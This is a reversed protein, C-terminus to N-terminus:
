AARVTGPLQIVDYDADVLAPAGRKVVELIPGGVRPPDVLKQIQEIDLNKCEVIWQLNQLHLKAKTQAAGAADYLARESALLNTLAPSLVQHERGFATARNVRAVFANFRAQADERGRFAREYAERAAPLQALAENLERELADRQATLDFEATM